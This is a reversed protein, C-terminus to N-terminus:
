PCKRLEIAIQWMAKRGCGTTVTSILCQEIVITIVTWDRLQLQLQLQNQNMFTYNYSYNYQKLISCSYNFQVFQLLGM